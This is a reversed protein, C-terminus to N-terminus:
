HSRRLSRKRAEKDVCDYVTSLSYTSGDNITGLCDTSRNDVVFIETELGSPITERKLSDLTRAVLAARNFTPVIVDLKM